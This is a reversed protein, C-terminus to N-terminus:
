SVLENLPEALLRLEAPDVPRSWLLPDFMRM